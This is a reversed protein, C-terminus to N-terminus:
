CIVVVATIFLVIEMLEEWCIAVEVIIFLAIESLKEWYIAVAIIFLQFVSLSNCHFYDM